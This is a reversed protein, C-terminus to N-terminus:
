DQVSMAYRGETIHVPSGLASIANTGRGNPDNNGTSAARRGQNQGVGNVGLRTFDACTCCATVGGPDRAVSEAYGDEAASQELWDSDDHVIEDTVSICTLPGSPPRDPLKTGGPWPLKWSVVAHPSDVTTAPEPVAPSGPMVPVASLAEVCATDM